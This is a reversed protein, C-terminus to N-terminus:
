FEGHDAVGLAFPDASSPLALRYAPRVPRRRCTKCIRHCRDTWMDKGCGLCSMSKKTQDAVTVPSM